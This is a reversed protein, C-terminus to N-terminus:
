TLDPFKISKGIAKPVDRAQLQADMKRKLTQPDLIQFLHDRWDIENSLTSDALPFGLFYPEGNYAIGFTKPTKTRYVGALQPPGGTFPDKKKGIVDCLAWFIARSTGGQGENLNETVASKMANAGTGIAAVLSSKSTDFEIPNNSWANSPANYTLQWLRFEAHM